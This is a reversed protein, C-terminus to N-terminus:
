KRSSHYLLRPQTGKHLISKILLSPKMAHSFFQSLESPNSAFPIINHPFPPFMHHSLPWTHGPM